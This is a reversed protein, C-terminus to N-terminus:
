YHEVFFHSANILSKVSFSIQAALFLSLLSSIFKTPSKADVDSIPHMAATIVQFHVPQEPWDAKTRDSLLLAHRIGNDARWASYDFGIILTM